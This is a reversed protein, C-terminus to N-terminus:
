NVPVVDTIVVERVAPIDVGPDADIVSLVRYTWVKHFIRSEGELMDMPRFDEFFTWLRQYAPKGDVMNDADYAEIYGRPPLLQWIATQMIRDHIAYKSWCEIQYSLNLATPVMRRNVINEDPRLTEVGTRSLHTERGIDHETNFMWITIAPYGSKGQIFREPTQMIAPVEVQSGSTAGPIKVKKDLKLLLAKDVDEIYM